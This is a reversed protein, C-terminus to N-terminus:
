RRFANLAHPYEHRFPFASFWTWDRSLVNLVALPTWFLRSVSVKVLRWIHRSRARFSPSSSPWGINSFPEAQYPCPRGDVPSRSDSTQIDAASAPSPFFFQRGYFLPDVPPTHLLQLLRTVATDKRHTIFIMIILLVYPSSARFAEPGLFDCFAGSCIGSRGKAM